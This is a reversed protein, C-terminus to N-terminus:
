RLVRPLISSQFPPISSLSLEVRLIVPRPKRNDPVELGGANWREMRGEVGERGHFTEEEEREDGEGRGVGSGHLEEVAVSEVAPIAVGLDPPNLVSGDRAARHIAIRVVLEEGGLLGVSVEGELEVVFEGARFAKHVAADLETALAQGIWSVLHETILGVDAHSVGAREIIFRASLLHQKNRVLVEDRSEFLRAVPVSVLDDGFARADAQKEVAGQGGVVGLALGSDSLFAQDGQLDVAIRLGLNSVAVNGDLLHRLIEDRLFGDNQVAETVTWIGTHLQLWPFVALKGQTFVFDDDKGTLGIEHAILLVACQLGQEGGAKGFLLGAETGHGPLGISNVLM